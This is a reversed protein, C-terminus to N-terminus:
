NGQLWVQHEMELTTLVDSYCLRIADIAPKPDFAPGKQMSWTYDDFVLIGGRSLVNLSNIGDMLVSSAKHDGDVYIFDFRKHIPQHFFDFSNMKKKILRGSALHEKVKEDYTAEVGLWDLEKHAPEDSGQWTDVDTLSSNPHTLINDFLWKTADGTYAGIQLCNLEDGVYPRLHKEFYYQASMAFWNPYSM